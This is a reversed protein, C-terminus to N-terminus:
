YVKIIVVSSDEKILRWYLKREKKHLVLLEATPAFLYWCRSEVVQILELRHSPETERLLCVDQESGLCKNRVTQEHCVEVHLAASALLIAGYPGGYQVCGDQVSTNKEKKKKKQEAKNKQQQKQHFANVNGSPM